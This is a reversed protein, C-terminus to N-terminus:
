VIEKKQTPIICMDPIVVPFIGACRSATWSEAMWFACPIYM